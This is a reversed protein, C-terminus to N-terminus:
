PSQARLRALCQEAHEALIAEVRATKSDELFLQVQARPSRGSRHIYSIVQPEVERTELRLPEGGERRGEEFSIHVGVGHADVLDLFAYDLTYADESAGYPGDSFTRETKFVDADTPARVSFGPHVLAALRGVLAIWDALLARPVDRHSRTVFDHEVDSVLVGQYSKFTKMGLAGDAGRM